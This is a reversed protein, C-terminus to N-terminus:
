VEFISQRVSPNRYHTHTHTHAHAHAHTHTHHTHAMHTHWTHRHTHRHTHAMHAHTHWTHTGHAFWTVFLRKTQIRKCCVHSGSSLQFIYIRTWKSMSLANMKFSSCLFAILANTLRFSTKAKRGVPDPLLTIYLSGRTVNYTTRIPQLYGISRLPMKEGPETSVRVMIVAWHLSILSM